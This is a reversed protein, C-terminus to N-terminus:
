VTTVSIEVEVNGRVANSYPCVKHAEAVLEEAEAQALGSIEVALSVGLQFPGEPSSSLTVTADVSTGTLHQGEKRALYLMANEFCAAYGAAFLQEPNTANEPGGLSKPQALKLKLLGDSSAVYGDRGGEARVKATYLIPM